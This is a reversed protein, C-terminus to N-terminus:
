PHPLPFALLQRQYVERVESFPQRDKTYLVARHEFLADPIPLSQGTTAPVPAQEWGRPLPWWLIQAAFTQRYPKLELVAKGFPTDTTELLRNMQPTLRSPVYWNDAESLVRSGCLLQVRRYNVPEDPGVGLRERQEATAPRTEGRILRALIRAEGTDSLHHEACWKELTLTASTSALIEANLTEVLATAEVRTLFDDPWAPGDASAPRSALLSSMVSAALATARGLRAM